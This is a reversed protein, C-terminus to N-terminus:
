VCDHTAPALGGNFWTSIGVTGVAVLGRLLDYGVKAVGPWMPVEKYTAKYPRMQDFSCKCQSYKFGARKDTKGM